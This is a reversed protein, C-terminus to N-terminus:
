YISSNLLWKTHNYIVFLTRFSNIRKESIEKNYKDEM